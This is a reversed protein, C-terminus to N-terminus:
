QKLCLTLLYGQPAEPFLFLADEYSKRVEDEEIGAFFPLTVFIGVGLMKGYAEKMTWLRIQRAPDDGAWALEEPRFMRKLVGASLPRICQIDVGVPVDAVAAAAWEGSHTLSPFLPSGCLMPRGYLGDTLHFPPKPGPFLAYLERCLIEATVSERLANGRLKNLREGRPGSMEALSLSCAEPSLLPGTKCRVTM